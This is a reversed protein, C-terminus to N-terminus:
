KSDVQNRPNRPDRQWREFLISKYQLALCNVVLLEATVAACLM